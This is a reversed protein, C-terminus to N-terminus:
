PAQWIEKRERDRIELTFYDAFLSHDIVLTSGDRGVM